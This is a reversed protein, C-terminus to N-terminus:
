FWERNFIIYFCSIENNRKWKDYLLLGISTNTTFFIIFCGILAIIWVNEDMLSIMVIFFTWTLIIILGFLIPTRKFEVSNLVKKNVILFTLHAYVELCYTLFYGTGFSVLFAKSFSFVNFGNDNLGVFLGLIVGIVTTFATIFITYKIETNIIKRSEQYFDDMFIVIKKDTSFFSLIISLLHRLKKEFGSKKDITIM